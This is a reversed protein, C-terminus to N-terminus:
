HEKRTMRVSLFSGWGLKNTLFRSMSNPIIKQLFDKLRGAPIPLIDNKLGYISTGDVVFLDDVLKQWEEIRYYRAIAGDTASQSVANLSNGRFFQGGLIGKFFGDFVYYKWFSRHYVMVNAQGNEKLVRHMQELIRRTDSSHHIVGWSWIYDFSSDAFSLEEADMQLIETNILGLQDIRKRTSEVALETLDIGAYSRAQPAILSAHSGQGVGIELVDMNPLEEYPIELEFPRNNFPMYTQASEFFRRDVEAFYEESFKPYNIEERWDYRMPTSSWWAKNAEQWQKRENEDSPRATPNSFGKAKNGFSEGNFNDDSM